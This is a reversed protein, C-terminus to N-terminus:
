DHITSFTPFNSCEEVYRVQFFYTPTRFPICIWKTVVDMLLQWGDNTLQSVDEGNNGKNAENQLDVVKTVAYRCVKLVDKVGSGSNWIQNRSLLHFCSKPQGSTKLLRWLNASTEHDVYWLRGILDQILDSHSFRKLQELSCSTANEFMPTEPFHLSFGAIFALVSCSLALASIIKSCKRDMGIFSTAMLDFEQALRKVQFSVLSLLEFLQPYEVLVSKGVQENKTIKDQNFPVSVLLKVIDVVVAVVKVRLALFWRQFCFAQGPKVITELTELSTCLSSYAEVLKEYCKPLDADLSIEVADEKFYMSSVKKTELLKVLSSGQKSLLLLQIKKESHSFQALSKLWCLCSDSQAKTMLQEFIFSATFWAGQHAASKGAKYANWYDMGALIKEAFEMALTEHEILRGDLTVLLNENSNDTEANENVVFDGATCSYLLLSYVMHIYYDFLSCQHVHEVLLKVKHVVQTTISKTEKLHELCSVVFRYVYIALTSMIFTSTTGKCDVIENVSSSAKSPSTVRNHMNVLYEMFLNIKDLALVGLDPHEKVLHLFLRFLSHCEKELDSNSHCLDLMPKVLSTLQDIVLQITQSLLTSDAGDSEIRFRERLKGSIVVLVRIALLRKVTITSKSANEIITLIKDFELMDKGDALCYVVIQLYGAYTFVKM